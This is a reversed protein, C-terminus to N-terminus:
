LSIWISNTPCSIDLDLSSLAGREKWNMLPTDLGADPILIPKILM